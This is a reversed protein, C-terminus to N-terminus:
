QAISIPLSYALAFFAPRFANIFAASKGMERAMKLVSKQRLIHRLQANPFGQKHHGLEQAANVGTLLATQGTASQPLGPVGLTAELPIMVGGHPLIKGSSGETIPNFVPLLEGRCPNVQPDDRGIGLGDIFIFAVHVTVAKGTGLTELAKQRRWPPCFILNRRPPDM